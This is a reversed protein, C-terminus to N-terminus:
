YNYYRYAENIVKTELNSFQELNGYDYVNGNEDIYRIMHDDKFYLRHEITGDFIFAFVLNGNHYRYDRSYGWAAFNKELVVKTDASTPNYYYGRIKEIEKELENDSIYFDDQVETIESTIYETASVTTALPEAVYIQVTCGYSVKKDSVPFQSIVINVEVDDTATPITETRLGAQSLVEIADDLTLGVVDPVSILEMQKSTIQTEVLVPESDDSDNSLCMILIILSALIVVISVVSLILGVRKKKNKAPLQNNVNYNESIKDCDVGYTREIDDIDYCLNYDQTQEIKDALQTVCCDSNNSIQPFQKALAKQLLESLEEMSQCRREKFVALGYMIVRELAQSIDVGLESPLKLTDEVIRDIANDPTRGTICKYITACIGYVDTWPGQNGNRRYQEEPTYGQKIIVSMEKEENTFYRASGFDMLVLSGNSLYMINDPAIDRHIIQAQHVRGLSDIIPLMLTIIKEASISGNKKIYSLLNEGELFEMVIYATGNDEFYDRVNVLGKESSFKAVNRAEQLFREKGKDFFARKSEASFYLEQSIDRSRNACGSPFYEKIAIVLDLTTDLGIYTIGFGGEGLVNGVIYKNVLLTGPKLHHAIQNPLSEKM